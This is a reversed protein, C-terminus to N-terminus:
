ATATQLLLSGSPKQRTICLPRLKIIAGTESQPTHNAFTALRQAVTGKVLGGSKDGVAKQM